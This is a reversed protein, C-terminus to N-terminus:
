WRRPGHVGECNLIAAEIFRTRRGSSDNVTPLYETGYSLKPNDGLGRLPSHRWAPSVPSNKRQVQAANYIYGPRIGDWGDIQGQSYKLVSYPSVYYSYFASDSHSPNLTFRWSYAAHGTKVPTENVLETVLNMVYWQMNSKIIARAEQMIVLKLPM